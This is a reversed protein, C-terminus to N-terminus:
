SGGGPVSHETQSRRLEDAGLGRGAKAQDVFAAVESLSWFVARTGVRIRRPFAGSYELLDVLYRSMGTLAYLERRRILQDSPM